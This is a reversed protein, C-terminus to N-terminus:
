TPQIRVYETKSSYIKVIKFRHKPNCIGVEEHFVQGISTDMPGIIYGDINLALDTLKCIIHNMIFKDEEYQSKRYLKGFRNNVNNVDQFAKALRNALDIEGYKVLLGYLFILTTEDDLHILNLRRGAKLKIEAIHSFPPNEQELYILPTNINMALWTVKDFDEFNRIYEGPKSIGKYFKTKSNVVSYKIQYTTTMLKEVIGINLFATLSKIVPEVISSMLNRDYGYVAWPGGNCENNCDINPNPCNFQNTENLSQPRKLFAVRPDYNQVPGVYWAGIVDSTCIIILSRVIFNLLDPDEVDRSIDIILQDSTLEGTLLSKGVQHYKSIVAFYNYLIKKFEAESYPHDMWEGLSKVMKKLNRYLPRKNKRTIGIFGDVPHDTKDCKYESEDICGNDKGIDHFLAGLVTLVKEQDTLPETLFRSAEDDIINYAARATWLSHYGLTNRHHCNPKSRTYYQLCLDIYESAIYNFDFNPRSM